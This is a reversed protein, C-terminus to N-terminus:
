SYSGGSSGVAASRGGYGSIATGASPSATGTGTSTTLDTTSTTPAPTEIETGETITVSFSSEDLQTGLVSETSFSINKQLTQNLPNTTFDVESKSPVVIDSILSLIKEEKAFSLSMETTSVAMLVPGALTNDERNDFYEQEKSASGDGNVYRVKYLTTDIDNDFDQEIDFYLTMSNASYFVIDNSLFVAAVRNEFENVANLFPRGAGTRRRLPFVLINKSGRGHRGREGPGAQSMDLNVFLYRQDVYIPGQIPVVGEFSKKIQELDILTSM